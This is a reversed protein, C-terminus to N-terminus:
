ERNGGEKPKLSKYFYDLPMWKVVTEWSDCHNWSEGDWGAMDIIPIGGEKNKNYMMIMYSKSPDDPLKRSADIWKPLEEKVQDLEAQLAESKAKFQALGSNFALEINSREGQGLLLYDDKFEKSIWEELTMVEASQDTQIEMQSHMWQAGKKAAEAFILRLSSEPPMLPFKLLSIIESQDEIEKDTIQKM